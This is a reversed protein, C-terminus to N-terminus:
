INEIIWGRKAAAESAAERTDKMCLIEGDKQLTYKRVLNAAPGLSKIIEGCDRGTCGHDFTLLQVTM